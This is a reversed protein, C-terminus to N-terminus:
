QASNSSSKWFDFNISVEKDFKRLHKSMPIGERFWSISPPPNANASCKFVAYAGAPRAVLENMHGTFYPALRKNSDLPHAQRKTPPDADKRPGDELYPEAVRVTFNTAISGHPNSAKCLYVGEDAESFSDIHLNNRSIYSSSNFSNAVPELMGTPTVKFWEVTPKPNGSVPCRLKCKQGFPIELYKPNVEKFKPAALKGALCGTFLVLLCLQSSLDM